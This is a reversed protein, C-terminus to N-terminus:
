EDIGIFNEFDFSRWGKKDLDFYRVINDPAPMGNGNPTAGNEDVIDSKTTGFAQRKESNKKIFSFKVENENLLKKFEAIEM